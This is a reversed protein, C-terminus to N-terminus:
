DDDGVWTKVVQAVRAPDQAVLTRAHAIQGEYDLPAPGADASHSAGPLAAVEPAALPAAAARSPGLLGRVLPRLVAFVLALLVFLAVALKAIDRVIPREWLPPAEIEIKEPLTQGHFSANVVNVSDGRAADFGVADKVLRTMNELQAEGLPSGIVSGDEAVTRLDDVLVAVTLRKLRGAPQRTYAITRDIEYNRTMQRSTNDPGADENVAVTEGAQVAPVGPPLAVGPAPPQNSLAGPVGQVSRGNRSAEEALQESRVIQSEPRYQERAEEVTSLEVEAVVQARVRGPGVLPELLSEVRRTYREEMERALELQKDRMALDDDGGPASLLRGQQDVVTVQQAELEPISSAVLNAIATVQQSELRRGPRLQLFVSASPPRRDRVFASQRPLALHVRAAEVAQVNSITRALEMELAHQYRAGEMFQSVGFGPDKALVDFGGDGEPLGQGALTLRADHVKEAPVTIAGTAGDLKYPVGQQQLAQAIQAADQQSLNGYLLSYTPEQSWLVVGVGAAVAAAVGVLIALPRLSPPILSARTLEAAAAAAASM